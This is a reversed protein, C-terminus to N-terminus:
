AGGNRGRQLSLDPYYIRPTGRGSSGSKGPYESVGACAAKDVVHADMTFLISELAVFDRGALQMGQPLMVGALKPPIKPIV